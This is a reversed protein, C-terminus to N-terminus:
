KVGCPTSAIVGCNSRQFKEIVVYAARLVQSRCKLLPMIRTGFQEMGIRFDDFTLVVGRVGPIEAVQDLMRAVSAYSGILVGHTAPM